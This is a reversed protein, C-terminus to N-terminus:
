APTLKHASRVALSFIRVLEEYDEHDEEDSFEDEDDDEGRLQQNETESDFARGCTLRHRM